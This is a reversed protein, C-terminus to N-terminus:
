SLHLPVCKVVDRHADAAQEGHLNARRPRIGHAHIRRLQVRLSFDVMPALCTESELVASIVLGQCQSGVFTQCAITQEGLRVGVTPLQLSLKSLFQSEALVPLAVQGLSRDRWCLEAVTSSAPAPFRFALRISDAEGADTWLEPPLGGRRGGIR